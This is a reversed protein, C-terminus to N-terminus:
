QCTPTYPNADFDTCLFCEIQGEGQVGGLVSYLLTVNGDDHDIVGELISNWVQMIANLTKLPHDASLWADRIEVNFIGGTNGLEWVSVAVQGSGSVRLGRLSASATLHVVGLLPNDVTGRIYTQSTSAGILGVGPPVFVVNAGCDYLGPELRVEYTNPEAVTIPTSDTISALTDRLAQCNQAPTGTAQVFIINNVQLSQQAVAEPHPGAALIAATCLLLWSRSRRETPRM